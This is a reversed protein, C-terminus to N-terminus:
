VTGDFVRDLGLDSLTENTFVPLMEKPLIQNRAEMWRMANNGYKKIISAKDLNNIKGWHFTFEIGAHDLAKWIAAYFSDTQASAVSDFEAVCTYAFKTFGLLAKTKKVFRFTFVGLFPGHTKNLELLIDKVRTSNSIDVGISASLLKGQADTNSFMENLTGWRDNFPEYAKKILMNVISDTLQPLNKTLRGLFAPADEGPGAKTFDTPIRPYDQRYSRKYMVTSYAGAYLDYPNVLVQLHYPRENPFPLFPTNRFDLTEMLPKLKELGIRFRYANLLYLAETEIMMGHILGFSGFSVLAANFLEDSRVLQAKIKQVFVESVVPSSDRELYIHKGPGAIIHIGVIFDQTAGFNFASGHTNTSTAGVITQGNSAGSTKLARGLTRLNKSLEQVACGCQAFLFKDSEFPQPNLLEEKLMRKMMNLRGTSIIWDNTYGVKSFSWNAGLARVTKRQSVAKGLLNQIAATTANYKEMISGADGNAVNFLNDIRQTFTSHINSLTKLNTSQIVPDAAM